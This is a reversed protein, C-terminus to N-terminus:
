VGDAYCVSQPYYVTVGGIDASAPVFYGLGQKDEPLMRYPVPMHFELKEPNKDYMMIRRSGNSGANELKLVWDWTTIMPNCKKVYELLTMTRDSNMATTTLKRWLTLPMIFTNPSEKASTSTLISTVMGNIDAAIEDATKDDWRKSTGAANDAAIYQSIGPFNIFGKIDYDDDGSWALEDVKTEIARRVAEVKKAAININAKQAKELEFFSFRYGSGIHYVKSSKESGYIEVTPFDTAYDSIIKALGVSTLQRYTIETVGIGEPSAVPILELARLKTYITELTKQLIVECEKRLFVTYDM